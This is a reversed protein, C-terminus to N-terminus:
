KKKDDAKAAPAAAKAGAAPKGGAPAAAAAAAANAEALVAPTGAATPTLDEEKPIAVTALTQTQLSLVRMTDPVVVDSVHLSDGVGLNSVDLSIFEPIENPRCEIEVQRTILELVGGDAIGAAKGEFKLQVFVRITSSMDIAYFDVHIPRRTVPNIQIDRVLISSKNIASDSSEVQFITADYKTTLLRSLTLLDTTLNVPKQKPGYLVAPILDKNRYGRSFHKGSTRPEVKITKAQAM